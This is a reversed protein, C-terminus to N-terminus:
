VPLECESSLGSLHEIFSQILAIKAASQSSKAGMNVIM